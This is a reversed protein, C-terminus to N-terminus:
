ILEKKLTGRAQVDHTKYITEHSLHIDEQGLHQRKLWGATQEPSGYREM